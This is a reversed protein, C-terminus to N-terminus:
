SGVRIEVDQKTTNGIHYSKIVTNNPVPFYLYLEDGPAMEDMPLERASRIPTSFDRVDVRQDRNSRLLVYATPFWDNGREDKLWIGQLSAAATRAAGPLSKARDHDILLRVMKRHPPCYIQDIRVNRNIRHPKRKATGRGSLIATDSNYSLGSAWNRSFAEPLENSVAVGEAAHGAAVGDRPGVTGDNGGDDGGGDATVPKEYKGMLRVLEDAQEKGEPLDLRLRRTMLFAPEADAPVIYALAVLENQQTGFVQSAASNFPRYKRQSTLPNVQSYGIPEYVNTTIRGAHSTHTILRVQTPPLRLAGDPDFTGATAIWKTDILVLKNATNEFQPGLLDATMEPLEVGAVPSTFVNQIEISGPMATTLANPDPKMRYMASQKALEPLYHALPKSTSLSGRSLSTMVGAAMTDVSIWLGSDPNDQVQGNLTVTYPQYGGISVGVPLFGIGIMAIGATLIGIFLGLLGGAFINALHPVQVNGRVLRDIGFRVLILIVAFPGLLGLGWALSPMRHILLGVVLPEWIAFAMSGVCIVLVLQILATFLGQTAYWYITALLFILILINAIM